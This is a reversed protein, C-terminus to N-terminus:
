TNDNSMFSDYYSFSHWMIFLIVHQCVLDLSMICGLLLFYMALKGNDLNEPLWSESPLSNVFIVIPITAWTGLANM